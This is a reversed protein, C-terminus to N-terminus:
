AENNMDPGTTRARVDGGKEQLQQRDGDDKTWAQRSLGDANQNIYQINFDFGQLLLAWRYLRGSLQKASQLFTLARHDTDIVFKRGSLYVEFHHVSDVVALGELDTASYNREATKLQRSHFAVLLEEGNRCVSLVGGIGHGSTDTQLIFSDSPVPVHLLCKDALASCLYVFDEKRRNTWEVVEPATKRTAETLSSSHDALNPIFRRYYNMTGLFRQIDKKTKPRKYERIARVRSEPVEIVGEGVFMGLYELKGLGWECKQPKATLGHARLRALVQQIHRLHNEWSDSYILIDDIYAGSFNELDELVDNMMRQFTAPANKLGFPM